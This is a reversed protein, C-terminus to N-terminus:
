TTSATPRGTDLLHRIGAAIDQTFTLRGIQDDVVSPSAAPRWRRWPASSTTATASSGAPACSTTGPCSASSPTAPPRPRATSVWRAVATGDEAHADRTGDFVYDSSVHVPHPRARRRHPGAPGRRHRQSGLRRRPGGATEAADVATYAAANIITSYNKWNRSPSPSRPQRPRVRGRGAFEVSPDGDYPRRLAKGLQGDAGLVLIKKAPM